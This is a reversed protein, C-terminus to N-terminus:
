TPRFNQSSENFFDESNAILSYILAISPLLLFDQPMGLILLVALLVSRFSFIKMRASPIVLIFFLIFGFFGYRILVKLWTSHYSEYIDGLSIEEYSVNGIGFPNQSFIELLNNYIIQRDSFKAIRYLTQENEIYIEYLFPVLYLMLGIFVPILLKLRFMSYAQLFVIAILFIMAMRSFTTMAVIILFLSWIKQNRVLCLYAAISAVIAFGNPWGLIYGAAWMRGESTTVNPFYGNSLAESFFLIFVYLAVGKSAILFWKLFSEIHIVNHAFALLFVTMLFYLISSISISLYGKFMGFINSLLVLIVLFSFALIRLRDSSSFKGFFLYYGIVLFPLIYYPEQVIYIPFVTLIGVLSSFLEKSNTRM